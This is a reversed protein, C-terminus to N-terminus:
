SVLAAGVLEEDFYPAYGEASKVFFTVGADAAGRFVAIM